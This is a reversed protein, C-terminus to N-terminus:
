TAWANIQGLETPLKKTVIAGAGPRSLVKELRITYFNVALRPNPPNIYVEVDDPVFGKMVQIIARIVDGTDARIEKRPIMQVMYDDGRAGHDIQWNGFIEKTYQIPIVGADGQAQGDVKLDPDFGAKKLAKNAAELADRDVINRVQPKGEEDVPEGEIKKESDFFRM